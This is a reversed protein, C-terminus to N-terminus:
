FSAHSLKAESLEKVLKECNTDWSFENDRMNVAGQIYEKYLESNDAIRNIANALDVISNPNVVVGNKGNKVQTSLAGVNTAICPMGLAMAMGAPGSQTASRYPLVLTGHNLLEEELQEDSVWTNDLRIGHAKIKDMTSEDIPGRGVISLEIDKRKKLAAVFAEVLIDVGKYHEIRGVFLFKKNQNDRHSFIKNATLRRGLYNAGHEIGISLSSPFLSQIQKHAYSSLGVIVDVDKSFVLRILRVVLQWRDPHPKPDHLIYAWFRRKKCYKRIRKQWPTAMTEFVLDPNEDDIVKSIAKIRRRLILSKILDPLNRYTQVTVVSIDNDRFKDIIPNQSSLIVTVQALKRLGNALGITTNSNGESRGLYLLAIREIAM